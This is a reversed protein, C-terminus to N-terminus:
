LLIEKLLDYEEESPIFGIDDDKHDLVYWEYDKHYVEDLNLRYKIAIDLAKLEKEIIKYNTNEKLEYLSPHKHVINKNFCIDKLFTDLAKLGKSM